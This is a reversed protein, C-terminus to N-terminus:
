RAKAIGNPPPETRMRLPVITAPQRREVRLKAVEGCLKAWEVSTYLEM